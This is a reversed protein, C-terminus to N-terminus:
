IFVAVAYQSLILKKKKQTVHHIPQESTREVHM